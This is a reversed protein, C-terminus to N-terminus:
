QHRCRSKQGTPMGVSESCGPCPVFTSYYRHSSGATRAPRRKWSRGRPTSPASTPMLTIETGSTDSCAVIDGSERTLDYKGIGHHTAHRHLDDSTRCISVYSEEIEPTETRSALADLLRDFYARLGKFRVSGNQYSETSPATTTGIANLDLTRLYEFAKRTPGPLDRPALQNKRFLDEVTAIAQSVDGRLQQRREETLPTALDRRVRDALRVLGRIYLKQMQHPEEMPMM